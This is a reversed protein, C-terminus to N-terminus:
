EYSLNESVYRAEYENYLEAMKETREGYNEVELLEDRKTLYEEALPSINEGLMIQETWDTILNCIKGITEVSLFHESAKYYGAKFADSVLDAWEFAFKSQERNVFHNIAKAGEIIALRDLEEKDTSEQWESVIDTSIDTYPTNLNRGEKNAIIEDVRSMLEGAENPLILYHRFEGCDRIVYRWYLAKRGDRTKYPKGFYANKFINEEM